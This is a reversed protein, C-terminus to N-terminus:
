SINTSCSISRVLIQAVPYRGQQNGFTGQSSGQPIKQFHRFIDRIMMIMILDDLNDDFEDFHKDIMKTNLQGGRFIMWIMCIMM